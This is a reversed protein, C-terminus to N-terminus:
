CRGGRNEGEGQSVTWPWHGEIEVVLSWSLFTRIVVLMALISVSRITPVVAVTDVVDAAVLFELGLLMSSGIRDKFPKYAEAAMKYQLAYRVTANVIGGVILLVATIQIGKSVMEVFEPIM